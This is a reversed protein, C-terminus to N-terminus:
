ARWAPRAIARMADGGFAQTLLAALVSAPLLTRAADFM